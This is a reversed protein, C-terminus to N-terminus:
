KIRGNRKRMRELKDQEDHWIKLNREKMTQRKDIYFFVTRITLYVIGIGAIIKSLINDWNVIIGLFSIPVGLWDAILWGVKEGMKFRRKIDPVSLDPLTNYLPNGSSEHRQNGVGNNISNSAM